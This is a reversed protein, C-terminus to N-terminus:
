LQVVAILSSALQPFRGVRKFRIQQAGAERLLADLTKVSFFKIHGGDWLATFHDDMKGSVALAVNKIYGHYQTTLFGIGGPAILDLFTKALARPEYCHGIVELSVVLDFTGFRSALDDYAAAVEFSVHPYFSKAHKIRSLSTDVATIDFGQKSLMDCTAGSGCGLDFARKKPWSKHQIELQLAPWLHAKAYSSKTYAHFEDSDPVKAETFNAHSVNVDAFGSAFICRDTELADYNTDRRFFPENRGATFHTVLSKRTIGPHKVPSGGHALDAHWILVDGKRALFSGRVHGYAQADKHLSALFSDHEHPSAELWKHAGGFLYDPARHSGIYYELEGTNSHVDELALWSAALQMPENDVMVYASDKHIPQESGKWFYLSQFAKPKDEFIASLFDMIKPAMTAERALASFAFLDRLKTKGARYELRPPIHKPQGDPEFTEIMMGEPPTRWFGEIEENLQDLLQVPVANKFVIYGDLVFKFIQMSLEESITGANKKRSLQTLFDPRDIWMGGFPSFAEGDNASASDGKAIVEGTDFVKVSLYKLQGKPFVPMPFTFGCSGDSIEAAVLDDRMENAVCSGIITDRYLVNLHIREKPREPAFAWGSIETANFRDIHATVKM